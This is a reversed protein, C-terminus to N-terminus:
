VLALYGLYSAIASGAAGIGANTTSTSLANQANANALAAQYQNQAAGTLDIGAAPDASGTAGPLTPVSYASGSSVPISSSGAGTLSGSASGNTLLSLYDKLSQQRDTSQVGIDSLQQQNQRTAESQAFTSQAQSEGFNQQEAALARNEEDTAATQGASIASDRADTYAKQKQLDFNSMATNFADSNENLGSALLQARQAQEAQQWQPDLYQTAQQYAANTADNLTNQNYTVANGQPGAVATVPSLESAFNSPTALSQQAQALTRGELGQQTSTLGQQTSTLGQETQANALQAQTVALSQPALGLLASQASLQQGQVGQQQNFLQQQEPTLTQNETYTTPTNGTADLGLSQPTDGQPDIPRNLADGTNTYYYKAYEDPTMGTTGTAYNAAVDPNAAFYDQATIKNTGQDTTWTTTGYPTTVNPHNAITNSSALAQNQQGQQTQLATYDPTAPTSAKGGM